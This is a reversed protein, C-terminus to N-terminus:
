RASDVSLSLIPCQLLREVLGYYQLVIQPVTLSRQQGCATSRKVEESQQGCAQKKFIDLCTHAQTPMNVHGGM